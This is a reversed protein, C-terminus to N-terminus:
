RKIRFIQSALIFALNVLLYAATILRFWKHGDTSYITAPDGSNLRDLNISGLTRKWAVKGDKLYVVAMAGRAVAMIAKQDAFYVPYDAMMVDIARIVAATDPPMLAVFAGPGYLQEMRERLENATYSGAASAETPHPVLLLMRDGDTGVISDTVDLGTRPDLLTLQKASAAKVERVEKFEWGSDEDPLEADSFTQERGNRTYVYLAEAESGDALPEGVPYPRFDLLPQEHYGVMGLIIMYAVAAAIQMWQIWPAILPRGRRNYRVLFVCLAFLVVNKAFTAGNSIILFDGFCGCDSVPNALAIYASLPLMFCMLLLACLPAVRRLSGTAVLIGTVFEFTSLLCGGMLMLGPPVAEALGWVAFYSSIKIAFGIPDIMKAAGSVIFVAGVLLRALWLAVRMM